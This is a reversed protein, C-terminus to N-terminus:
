TQRTPARPYRLMLQRLSSESRNLLRALASISTVASVAVEHALWARAVALTHAKDRSSIREPAIAFRDACEAVLSNLSRRMCPERPIGTVRAVFDADGLVNDHERNLELEGIGWRDPSPSSMLERYRAMATARRNGLVGLAFRTTVWDPDPRGLYNHHSSWPYDLPDDVLGARVPNQHIYRILTVLYRDEDVLAAHHRREFLHGTTEINSQAARAYRGAIRMIADGLPRSSVQVLMHIHNSMWCFAHIRIGLQSVVRSVIGNLLDRDSARFFIPQRHNGRLTVHYFGNPVHLRLPRAM